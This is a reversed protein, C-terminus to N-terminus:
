IWGILVSDVIITVVHIVAADRHGFAGGLTDDASIMETSKDSGRM